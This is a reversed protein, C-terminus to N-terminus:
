KGPIRFFLNNKRYIEGPNGLQPADWRGKPYNREPYGHRSLYNGKDNARMYEGIPGLADTATRQRVSANWAEIEDSIDLHMLVWTDDKAVYGFGLQGRNVQVGHQVEHAVRSQFSMSKDPGGEEVTLTVKEGDFSTAGEAEGEVEAVEFEYEIESDELEELNEYDESDEDLNEKYNNYAKESKENAFTVTLGFPDILCIPNNAAYTYRNMTMPARIDGPVPDVSLFRAHGQDYHRALM